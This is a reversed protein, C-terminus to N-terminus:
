HLSRTMDSVSFCSTMYNNCELRIVGSLVVSVHNYHATAIIADSVNPASPRHCTDYISIMTMASSLLLCAWSGLPLVPKSVPISLARWTVATWLM